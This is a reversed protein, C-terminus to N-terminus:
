KKESQGTRDPKTQKNEARHDNLREMGARLADGGSNNPHPATVRSTSQGKKVGM